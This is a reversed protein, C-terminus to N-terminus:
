RNKKKTEINDKNHNSNSRVLSIEYIKFSTVRLFAPELLCVDMYVVM